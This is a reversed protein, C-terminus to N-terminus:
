KEGTKAYETIQKATMDALGLREVTIGTEWYDIGSVISGLHILAEYTPMSVDLKRGLSATPVLGYPIDEQLVVTMDNLEKCPRFAVHAMNSRIVDYLTEGKAGMHSYLRVMIDKLSDLKLGLAEGIAIKERDQAELVKGITPSQLDQYFAVDGHTKEWVAMNLLTPASHISPNPSEISTQLVNAVPLTQPFVKKLTKVLRKTNTSPIAAVSLENKMADTYVVGSAVPRTMFPYISAESFVTDEPVKRRFLDWLRLCFWYPTWCLLIQGSELYPALTKVFNEHGAARSVIMILDVGEVADRINTTMMDPKFLGNFVAGKVEIGGRDLYPELGTEAFAPVEYLNVDFGKHTLYAALTAGGTGCGCVAVRPNNM